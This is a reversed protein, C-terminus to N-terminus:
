AAPERGLDVDDDVRLAERDPEAQGGPLRMVPLDGVRQEVMEARAGDHQCVLGVVGAADAFQDLVFAGRGVDRRLAVALPLRGEALPEVALAIEDLPEKGLQLVGDRQWESRCARRWNGRSPGARM